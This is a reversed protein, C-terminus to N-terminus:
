LMVARRVNISSTFLTFGTMMTSPFFSLILSDARSSVSRISMRQVWPVGPSSRSSRKRRCTPSRGTYMQVSLSLRPFFYAGPEPVRKGIRLM